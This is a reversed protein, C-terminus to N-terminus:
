METKRSENFAFFFKGVDIGGNIKVEIEDEERYSTRLERDRVKGDLQKLLINNKM